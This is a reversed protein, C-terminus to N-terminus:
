QWRFTDLIHQIGEERANWVNQSASIYIEYVIDNRPIAIDLTRITIYTYEGSPLLPVETAPHDYIYELLYGSSGDLQTPEQRILQFNRQQSYFSLDSNLLYEAYQEASGQPHVWIYLSANVPTEEESELPALIHVLVVDTYEEM